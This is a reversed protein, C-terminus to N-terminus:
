VPGELRSPLREELSPLGDLLLEVRASFEIEWRLGGVDAGFTRPDTCGGARTELVPPDFDGTRRIPLHDHISEIGPGLGEHGVEFAHEELGSGKFGGEVTM